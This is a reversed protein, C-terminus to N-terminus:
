ELVSSLKKDEKHKNQKREKSRKNHFKTRKEDRKRFYRKFSGWAAHHGMGAEARKLAKALLRLVHIWTARCLATAVYNTLM